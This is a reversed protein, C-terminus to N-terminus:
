YIKSNDFNYDLFIKNIYSPADICNKKDNKINERKVIKFVQLNETM